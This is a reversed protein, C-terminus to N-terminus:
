HPSMARRSCDAIVMVCATSTPEGEGSAIGTDEACRAWTTGCLMNERRSFYFPYSGDKVRELEALARRSNSYVERCFHDLNRTVSQGNSAQGVYHCSACVVHACTCWLPRSWSQTHAVIANIDDRERRNATTKSSYCLPARKVLSM